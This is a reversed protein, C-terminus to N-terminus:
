LRKKKYVIDLKFHDIDIPNPLYTCGKVLGLLDPTSVIVANALRRAKYNNRNRLISRARRRAAVFLASLLNSRTSPKDQLSLTAL